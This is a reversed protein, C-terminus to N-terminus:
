KVQEAHGITRVKHVTEIIAAKDGPSVGFQVDMAQNERLLRTAEPHDTAIIARNRTLGTVRIHSRLFGNIFWDRLPQLGKKTKWAAYWRQLPKAPEDRVNFAQSLRADQSALYTDAIEQMGAQTIPTTNFRARKLFKTSM